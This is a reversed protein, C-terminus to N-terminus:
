ELDEWKLLDLRSMKRGLTRGVLKHAEHPPIGGGPKKACVDSAALTYGSPRDFKLALSRGFITQLSAVDDRPEVPQALIHFADRAECVLALQEPTLSSSTDPGFQMRHFALHVEVVAAGRAMAALAPFVTGTHDSLGVPVDFAEKWVEMGDLDVEDLAAPYRTTCHLLALPVDQLHKRRLVGVSDPTSLGTSLLVPQRRGGIWDLLAPHLVEGSAIKWAEMGISAMMEAAELSFVSSLFVLGKAEAHRKLGAWQDPAFAMRRWYDLRTADEYSFPVRFPEANTSEAEACHTQFKVADAGAHAALDIFSHAFGLSGDHAQAVEAVVFCPQGKGVTRAGLSFRHEM